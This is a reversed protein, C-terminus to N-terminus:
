VRQAHSQPRVGARPPLRPLPPSAAHMLRMGGITHITSGCAHWALTGHRSMALALSAADSCLMAHWGHRAGIVLERAIHLAWGCAWRGRKWGRGRGVQLAAALTQLVAAMYPAM